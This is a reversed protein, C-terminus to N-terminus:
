GYTFLMQENDKSKYLHEVREDLDYYSCAVKM